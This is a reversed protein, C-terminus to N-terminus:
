STPYHSSFILGSQAWNLAAKSVDLTLHKRSWVLIALWWTAINSKFGSLKNFLGAQSPKWCCSNACPQPIYFSSRTLHSLQIQYEFNSTIELKFTMDPNNLQRGCKNELSHQRYKIPVKFINFSIEFQLCIIINSNFWKGYITKCFTTMVKCEGSINQWISAYFKISNM